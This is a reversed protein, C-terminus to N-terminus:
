YICKKWYIFTDQIYLYGTYLPIWYIFTDLIYIKELTYLYGTFLPIWFIFTDLIYLYECLYVELTIWYIHGTYTYLPFLYGTYFHINKMKFIWNYITYKLGKSITKLFGDM